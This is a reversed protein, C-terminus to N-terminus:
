RFGERDRRPSSRTPLGRAGSYVSRTSAIGISANQEELEAGRSGGVHSGNGGENHEEQRPCYRGLLEAGLRGVNAGRDIPAEGKQGPVRQGPLFLVVADGAVM